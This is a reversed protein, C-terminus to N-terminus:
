AAMALEAEAEAESDAADEGGAEAEALIREALEVAPCEAHPEEQEGNGAEGAGEAEAEDEDAGLLARLHAFLEAEEETPRYRAFALVETHFHLFAEIEAAERGDPEWGDRLVLSSIRPLCDPIVHMLLFRDVAGSKPRKVGRWEEGPEGHAEAFAEHAWARLKSHGMGGPFKGYAKRAFAAVHGDLESLAAIRARYRAEAEIEEPTPVRPEPEPAAEGREEAEAEARARESAEAEIEAESLERYFRASANGYYDSSVVALLGARDGEGDDQRMTAGDIEGPGVVRAGQRRLREALKSENARGAAKRCVSEREWEYRMSMIAEIDARSLVDRHEGILAIAEFDCTGDANPVLAAGRAFDRVKTVDM